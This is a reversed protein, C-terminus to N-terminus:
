LFYLAEGYQPLPLLLPFTNLTRKLQSLTFMKQRILDISHFLCIVCFQKAVCVITACCSLVTKLMEYVKSSHLVQTQLLNLARRHYAASM